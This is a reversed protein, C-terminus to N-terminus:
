VQSGMMKARKRRREELHHENHRMLGDVSDFRHGCFDCRYATGSEWVHHREHAKQLMNLAFKLGCFQCRNEGNTKLGLIVKQSLDYNQAKGLIRPRKPPNNPLPQKPPPQYYKKPVPRRKPQPKQDNIVDETVQKVDEDSESEQDSDFEDQEQDDSEDHDDQFQSYDVTKRHRTSRRTSEPEKQEEITEHKIEFSMGDTESKEARSM